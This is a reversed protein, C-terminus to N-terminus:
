STRSPPPRSTGRSSPLLGARAQLLAPLSDLHALKRSLFRPAEPNLELRLPRAGRIVRLGRVRMRAQPGERESVPDLSIGPTGLFTEPSDPRAATLTSGRTHTSREAGAHGGADATNAAVAAGHAAVAPDFAPTLVAAVADDAVELTGIHWAACALAALLGLGLAARRVESRPRTRLRNRPPLKRM